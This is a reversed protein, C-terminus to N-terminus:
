LSDDALLKQIAELEATGMQGSCGWITRPKAPARPEYAGALVRQLNDETCLWNLDAVWGKEGGGRLFPTSEARAFGEAIAPM